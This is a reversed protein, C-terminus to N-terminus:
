VRIGAHRLNLDDASGPVSRTARACRTGTHPTACFGPGGRASARPLWCRCRRTTCHRRPSSPELQVVVHSVGLGVNEATVDGLRHLMQLSAANDNFVETVIRDVGVPRKRMLVELLATAVGRGQWEDKVTVALDAADPADTYRVM